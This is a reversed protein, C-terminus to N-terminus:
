QGNLALAALLNSDSALDSSTESQVFFTIYLVDSSDHADGKPWWM